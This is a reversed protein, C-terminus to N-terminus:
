AEVEDREATVPALVPAGHLMLAPGTEILAFMPACSESSMAADAAAEAEELTEWRVLEIWRDGAPAYSLEHSVFGPQQEMWRSAAENTALFQERTTGEKLGFVVLELTEGGATGAVGRAAGEKVGPGDVTRGGV